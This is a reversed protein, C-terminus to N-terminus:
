FQTFRNPESITFSVADYGNRLHSTRRLRELIWGALVSKGCGSAGTVWLLSESGRQFDRLTSEFWECTYEYRTVRSGLRDSLFVELTRDQCSLWSRITHITVTTRTTIKLKRLACSWVESTFSEKKSYFSDIISGFYYDFRSLDVTKEKKYRLTVNFTFSVLDSFAEALITQIEVSSSFLHRQQLFFGLSTSMQYLIGFVKELLAIRKVGM